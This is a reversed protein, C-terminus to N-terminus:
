AIFNAQTAIARVFAFPVDDRTPVSNVFGVLLCDSSSVIKEGPNTIFSMITTIISPMPIDLTSLVYVVQFYTIAFKVLVTAESMGGIVVFKMQKLLKQLLNLQVM